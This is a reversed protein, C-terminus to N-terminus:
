SEGASLADAAAKDREEFNVFIGVFYVCTQYLFVLSTIILMVFFIWYIYQFPIHYLDTIKFYKAASKATEIFPYTAFGYTLTCIVRGFFKVISQARWGMKDVLLNVHIHRDAYTTRAVGLGVCIMIGYQVIEYQGTIGSNFASRLVINLLLVIIIFTFMIASVIALILTIRDVAKDMAKRM